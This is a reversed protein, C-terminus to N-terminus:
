EMVAEPPQSKSELALGVALPLILLSNFLLFINFNDAFTETMLHAQFIWFAIMKCGATALGVLVPYPVPRCYHLIGVVTGGTMFASLVYLGWFSTGGHRLGGLIFFGTVACIGLTLPVLALSWWRFPRRGFILSLPFVLFFAVAGESGFSPAARRAALFFLTAVIYVMMTRLFDPWIFSIPKM